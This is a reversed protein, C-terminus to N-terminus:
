NTANEVDYGWRSLLEKELMPLFAVYIQHINSTADLSERSHFSIASVAAANRPQECLSLLDYNLYLLNPSDGIPRSLDYQVQEEIIFRYHELIRFVSEQIKQRWKVQAVIRAIEAKIADNQIIDVRGSATLEEYAQIFFVRRM